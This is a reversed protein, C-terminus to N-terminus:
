PAPHVPVVRITLWIPKGKAKGHQGIVKIRHWKEYNDPSTTKVKKTLWLWGSLDEAPQNRKKVKRLRWKDVLNKGNYGRQHLFLAVEPKQTSIRIGHKRAESSMSALKREAINLLESGIGQRRYEPKVWRDALAASVSGVMHGGIFARTSSSLVRIELVKGDATEFVGQLLGDENRLPIKVRFRDNELYVHTPSPNEIRLVPVKRFPQIKRKGQVPPKSM